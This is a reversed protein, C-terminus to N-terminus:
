LVPRGGSTGDHPATVRLRQLSGPPGLDQPEEHYRHSASLGVRKRVGTMWARQLDGTFRILILLGAFCVMVVVIPAIFVPGLQNYLMWSALGVQLFSAWTDHAAIRLGYRDARHRNMLTLVANDDGAEMRVETAKRFVETVLIPRAMTLM